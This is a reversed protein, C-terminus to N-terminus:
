PFGHLQTLSIGAGHDHIATQVYRTHILFPRLLNEEGIGQVPLFQVLGSITYRPRIGVRLGTGRRRDLVPLSIDDASRALDDAQIRCVALDDPFHVSALLELTHGSFPARGLTRQDEIVLNNIRRTSILRCHHGQVRLRSLGYPFALRQTLVTRISRREQYHIVTFYLDHAHGSLAHKPHIRFCALDLPSETVPSPRRFIQRFSKFRDGGIGRKIIVPAKEDTVTIVHTRKHEAQVYISRFRIQYPPVVIKIRM